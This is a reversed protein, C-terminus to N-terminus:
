VTEGEEPLRGFRREAVCTLFISLIIFASGLCWQCWAHIVFAELYTLFLTVLVGASSLAFQWRGARQISALDRGHYGAVHHLQSRAGYGSGAEEPILPGAAIQPSSARAMSLAALALYMIAGFAATPIWQLGPIGFGRATFHRAVEECGHVASCGIDVFNLHALTLYTSVGAGALSLMFIIRNSITLNM